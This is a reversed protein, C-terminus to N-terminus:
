RGAPRVGAAGGPPHSRSAATRWRDRAHPRLFQSDMLVIEDLLPVSTQLANRVTCIVEGVTKEENLAPLALSITVGQERKLRVLRALDDFEDAHFTNEAFWRDVLLSIAQAGAREGEPGTWQAPQPRGASLVVLAAPAQALMREVFTGSASGAPGSSAGLLLLSADRAQELITEAPNLSTAVQYTVGPLNPLVRQLGRFPAEVASTTGPRSVHLAVLDSRPLALALRLALEANPGGRM